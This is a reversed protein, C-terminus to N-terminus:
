SALFQLFLRAMQDFLVWTIIKRDSFLAFSQLCFLGYFQEVVM